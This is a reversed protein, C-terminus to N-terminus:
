SPVGEAPGSGSARILALQRATGDEPAPTTPHAAAVALLHPLRRALTRAYRSFRARAEAAGEPVAAAMFRPTGSNLAYGPEPFRVSGEGNPTSLAWPPRVGVLKDGGPVDVGAARCGAAIRRALAADLRSGVLM